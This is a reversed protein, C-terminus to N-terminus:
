AVLAIVIVIWIYNIKTNETAYSLYIGSKVDEPIESAAAKTKSILVDDTLSTFVLGSKVTKGDKEFSVLELYDKYYPLTSINESSSVIEVQLNEGMTNKDAKNGNIYVFDVGSRESIIRLMDPIIGCYANNEEDYFEVPYNDPSGAVYICDGLGETKETTYVEAFVPQAGFIILLFIAIMCKRM